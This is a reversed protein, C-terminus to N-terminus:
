RYSTFGHAREAEAAIYGFAAWSEGALVENFVEEAQEPRGEYLHWNGVGYGLTANSLADDAPRWVEDAPLLGAYMLLLRHYDHNELIELDPSIPELRLSAEENRGLRRLSMYLWHSTAVLMDPNGAVRLCERYAEIAGDFDGELYRALGLHYFINSQLTSTPIGAANPLGDPEIEDPRGAILDVARELDDIARELQRTTIFRHGRHRLFRADLPHARVGQSFVGIAEEYRGLYALRRGLWILADADQPDAEHEARAARLKAEFDEQVEAPLAVPELTEGLLSTVSTPRQSTSSIEPQRSSEDHCAVISFFALSLLLREKM